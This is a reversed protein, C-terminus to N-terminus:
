RLEALQRKLKRKADAFRKQNLSLEPCGVMSDLLEVVDEIMALRDLEKLTATFVTVDFGELFLISLIDIGDKVGKLSGKREKYAHLKLILLVERRPVIFGEISVAHRQIYEVPIGLASWAPVYIDIDFGEHPIEYNRLRDNKRVDFRKKLTGLTEFDVIIDIDKSKLLRTHFFVAWGGILIFAFQKRISQLVSFSKDTIQEHWFAMTM